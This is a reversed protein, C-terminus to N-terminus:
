FQCVKSLFCLDSIKHDGMDCLLEVPRAQAFLYNTFNPFDVLAVYEESLVQLLNGDTARSDGVEISTDAIVWGYEEARHMAASAIFTIRQVSANCTTLQAKIYSWNVLQTRGFLARHRLGSVAASRPQFPSGSLPSDPAGAEPRFGYNLEAPRGGAGLGFRTNGVEQNGLAEGTFGFKTVRPDLSEKSNACNTVTLYQIGM